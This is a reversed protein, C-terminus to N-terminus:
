FHLLTFESSNPFDTSSKFVNDRKRQKKLHRLSEHVTIRYLWTKFSADGRFKKLGRYVALFVDQVVDSVAAENKLISYCLRAVSNQHKKVLVEFAKKDGNLHAKVLIKDDMSYWETYEMQNHRLM